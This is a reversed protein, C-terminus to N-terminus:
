VSRQGVRVEFIVDCIDCPNAIHWLREDVSAFRWMKAHRARRRQVKTIRQRTVIMKTPM